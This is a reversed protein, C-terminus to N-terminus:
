KQEFVLQLLNVDLRCIDSTRYVLTMDGTCKSLDYDTYSSDVIEGFEKDFEGRFYDSKKDISFGFTKIKSGNGCSLYVTDRIALGINLWTDMSPCAEYRGTYTLYMRIQTGFAAVTNRIEDLSYLAVKDDSTKVNGFEVGISSSGPLVGACGSRAIDYSISDNEIKYCNNDYMKNSSIRAVPNCDRGFCATPNQMITQASLRGNMAVASLILAVFLLKALKLDKDGIPNLSRFAVSHFLNLITRSAQSSVSSSQVTAM